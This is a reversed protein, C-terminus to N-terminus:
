KQTMKHYKEFALQVPKIYPNIKREFVQPKFVNQNGIIIVLDEVLVGTMEYWCLAYVTAQLFYDQIDSELKAKNATKFDIFAPKEKWTGMLDTRGATKLTHSVLCQEKLTIETLNALLQSRIQRFPVAVEKSLDALPVEVSTDNLWNDLMDHVATGRVCADETIKNAKTAGVAAKWRTIGSQKEENAIGLVTTVSPYFVGAEVEYVRSGTPATKSKFDYQDLWNPTNFPIV